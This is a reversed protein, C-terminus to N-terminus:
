AFTNSKNINFVLHCCSTEKYGVPIKGDARVDFAVMVDCMEKEIAMCWMNTGMRTDIDFTAKVSLFPVKIGFKHTKKRFHSKVKQIIQDCKKLVHPVWWAFTSPEKSAIKNNM